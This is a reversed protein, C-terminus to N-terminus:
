FTDEMPHYIALRILALAIIATVPTFVLTEHSTRAMLNGLTNLIFLGSLAWLNVTILLDPVPIRTLGSRLLVILLSWLTILISVTEFRLMQQQNQLRGSWVYEYPVVGTVILLHFVLIASFAILLFRSTTRMSVRRIM